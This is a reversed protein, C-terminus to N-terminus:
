IKLRQMNDALVKKGIGKVNLLEEMTVFEGNIERYSVIAQAKKEGIGKLSVLQEVTAKNLSIVSSVNSTVPTISTTKHVDKAFVVPASLTVIACLALLSIKM